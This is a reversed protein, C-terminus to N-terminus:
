RRGFHATWYTGYDSDSAKAIGVGIHRFDDSMMLVCHSPSALWASVAQQPTQRGAVINEGAEVWAYGNSRMREWPQSGDRGVHSYYNHRAMDRSHQEASRALLPNPRLARVAPMWEDGCFRARSRAVNTLDVTRMEADSMGQPATSSTTVAVGAPQIPRIRFAGSTARATSHQGRPVFVRYKGRPLSLDRTHTDSRTRYADYRKWDGGTRRQVVFRWSDGSPPTPRITVRLRDRDVATAISARLPAQGKKAPAPAPHTPAAAEVPPILGLTLVLSGSAALLRSHWRRRRHSAPAAPSELDALMRLVTTCGACVRRLHSSMGWPTYQNRCEITIWARRSEPPNGM